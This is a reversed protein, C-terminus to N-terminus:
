PAIRIGSQQRWREHLPRQALVDAQRSAALVRRQDDTMKGILQQERLPQGSGMRQAAVVDAWYYRRDGADYCAFVRCDCWALCDALIPQGGSSNNTALGALKDRQRGGDKAFNWALSTSIPECCTPWM